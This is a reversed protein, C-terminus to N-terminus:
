FSIRATNLNGTASRHTPTTKSALSAGLSDTYLCVTIVEKINLKNPAKLRRALIKKWLADDETDIIQIQQSVGEAICGAEHSVTFEAYPRQPRQFEKLPLYFLRKDFVEANEIERVRKEANILASNLRSFNTSNIDKAFTFCRGRLAIPLKDTIEPVFGAIVLGSGVIQTRVNKAFQTEFSEPM